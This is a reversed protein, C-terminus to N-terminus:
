GSKPDAAAYSVFPQVSGFRHGVLAYWAEADIERNVKDARRTVYEGQVLWDNRNVIAGVGSFTFTDGYIGLPAIDFDGNLRGARLTLWDNEWVANFGLVNRQKGEVPGFGIDVTFINSGTLGTLKITGDALDHTFTVDGGRLQDVVASAYVENPAHVWPNAYGVNRTDSIAFTPTAIRGARIALRPLPEVKVFLWEVQTAGYLSSRRKTLTQVTASLWSNARGILQVGLNSDTGLDFSDTAGNFQSERIYSADDTDTRLAALTGFGSLTFHEGIETAALAQTSSLSIAAFLLSRVLRHRIMM